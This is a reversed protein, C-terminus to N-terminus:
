ENENWMSDIVEKKTSLAKKLEQRARSLRSMVTGPALQLKEAIETYTYGEMDKMQIVERHEPSLQAIEQHLLTKWSDSGLHSNGRQAVAELQETEWLETKKGKNLAQFCFNVTFRNLWTYLSSKFEFDKLKPFSALFTEQIVDAIAPNGAGLFHIATHELRKKHADYFHQFAKEDGELILKVLEKEDM